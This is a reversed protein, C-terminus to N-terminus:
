IKSMVAFLDGESVFNGCISPNAGIVVGVERRELLAERGFDDADNEINAQAREEGKGAVRKFINRENRVVRERM